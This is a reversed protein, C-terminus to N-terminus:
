TSLLTKLDDISISKVWGTSPDISLLNTASMTTPNDMLYLGRGEVDPDLILQVKM